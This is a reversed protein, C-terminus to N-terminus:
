SAADENPNGGIVGDAAGRRCRSINDSPSAADGHAAGGDLPIRRVVDELAIVDPRVSSPLHRKAAAADGDAADAIDDPARRGPGAIDNETIVANPEGDAATAM